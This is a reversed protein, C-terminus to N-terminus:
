VISWQGDSYTATKGVGDDDFTFEQVNLPILFSNSGSKLNSFEVTSPNINSVSTSFYSPRYFLDIDVGSIGPSGTVEFIVEFYINYLHEFMTNMKSRVSGWSEELLFEERGTTDFATYLIEFNSNLDDRVNIWLGEWITNCTVGIFDSLDDFMQNLKTQQDGWLGETISQLM